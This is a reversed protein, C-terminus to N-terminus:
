SSTMPWPQLKNRGHLGRALTLNCREAVLLERCWESEEGGCGGGNTLNGCLVLHTTCAAAVRPRRCSPALRWLNRKGCVAVIRIVVAIRQWIEVVRCCSPNGVRTNPQRNTSEGVHTTELRRTTRNQLKKSAFVSSRVRLYQTHSHRAHYCELVRRVAGLSARTRQGTLRRLSVRLTTGGPFASLLCRSCCLTSLIRSSTLTLNENRCPGRVDSAM